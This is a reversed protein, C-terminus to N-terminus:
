SVSGEIGIQRQIVNLDVRGIGSTMRTTWIRKLLMPIAKANGIGIFGTKFIEIMTDSGSTEVQARVAPEDVAAAAGVALEALAVVV